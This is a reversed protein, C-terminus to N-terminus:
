GKYTRNGMNQGNQGTALFSAVKGELGPNHAGPVLGTIVKVGQNVGDGFGPEPMLLLQLPSPPPAHTVSLAAREM